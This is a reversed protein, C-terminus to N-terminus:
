KKATVKPKSLNRETLQGLGSRDALGADTAQTGDLRLIALNKCDM